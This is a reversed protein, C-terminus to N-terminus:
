VVGGPVAVAPWDEDQSVDEAAPVPEPDPIDEPAPERVKIALREALERLVTDAEAASVERSSGVPRKLIEGVLNLCGSPGATGLRGCLDSIQDVQDRTARPGEEVAPIGTIDAVAVPAITATIAVPEMDEIEEVSYTMGHLADPATQRCAESAARAYFMQQPNTKYKSNTYLEAKMARSADWTCRTIRNEPWDKRRACVTVSTDSQSETWVDHGAAQLIAVMVKAYLGVRGKIVYIAQWAALPDMGLTAGYLVAATSAPVNNRFHVPVFDTGCLARSIEEAAKLQEVWRVLDTSPPPAYRLTENTMPEERVALDTTM